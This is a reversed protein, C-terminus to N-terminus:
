HYYDIKRWLFVFNIEELLETQIIKYLMKIQNMNITRLALSVYEDYHATFKEISKESTYRLDWEMWFDNRNMGTLEESITAM